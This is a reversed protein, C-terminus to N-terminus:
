IKDPDLEGTTTGDVTYDELARFQDAITSWNTAAKYSDVLAAPVYIYCDTEGNPNYTSDVTGDLHYCNQVANVNTLRCLTQSRLIIATLSFCYAFVQVQIVTAAPFDVKTLNNCGRFASHGITECDVTFETATRQILDNLSRKGADYVAEVGSAMEGPKYSVAAGTKERIMQAIAIYHKDDTRVIAM